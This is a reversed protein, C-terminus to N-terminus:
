LQGYDARALNILSQPSSLIQVVKYIFADDLTSWGYDLDMLNQLAALAYALTNGHTTSIIDVLQALGGCELFQNAFQEERIYRQLSFLTLRLTKDDRMDLKAATDKAEIFPANVLKLHAKAKIKRRLNDNTVLDDLEDRLAFNAHPESIKLNICLQRVVDDVTLTPDIRAKVTVGSKTTVSNTPILQARAHTGNSQFSSTAMSTTM